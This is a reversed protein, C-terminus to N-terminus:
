NADQAAGDVLFDRVVTPDNRLLEFLTNITNVEVVHPEGHLSATREAQALATAVFLSHGGNATPIRLVDPAAEFLQRLGTEWSFCGSCCALHLPYQGMADPIAAAEPYSYLITMVQESNCRQSSCAAALPLQGTIPNTVRLQEPYTEVFWHFICTPCVRSATIGILASLVFRDLSSDQNGDTEEWTFGQEAFYTGVLLRLLVPSVKDMDLKDEVDMDRCLRFAIRLQEQWDSISTKDKIEESTSLLATVASSEVFIDWLDVSSSVFTVDVDHYSTPGIVMRFMRSIWQLIMM